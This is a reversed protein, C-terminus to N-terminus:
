KVPMPQIVERKELSRFFAARRRQLLPLAEGAKSDFAALAKDYAALAEDPRELMMLIDGRAIWADTNKEDAAALRTAEALADDLNGLLLARQIRLLGLAGSRDHGAGVVRLGGSEVRLGELEGKDPVLTVRYRGPVLAKTAAESALWFLTEVAGDGAPRSLPDFALEVKKGGEGTLKVVLNPPVRAPPGGEPLLSASIVIPWGPEAKGGALDNAGVVLTAASLMREGRRAGRMPELKQQQGFVPSVPLLLALLFMGFPKM